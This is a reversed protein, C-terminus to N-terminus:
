NACNFIENDVYHHTIDNSAECHFVHHFEDDVAFINSRGGRTKWVVSSTRM